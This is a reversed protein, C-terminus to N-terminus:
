EFKVPDSKQEILPKGERSITVKAHYTGDPWGGAPVGRKGAQLLVKAGDEGASESNRMLSKDNNFLEVDVTDGKKLGSALVYAVAATNFKPTKLAEGKELEEESVSHDALGLALVRADEASAAITLGSMLVLAFLVRTLM